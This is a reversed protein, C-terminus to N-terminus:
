AEKRTPDIRAAVDRAAAIVDHPGIRAVVHLPLGQADLVRHQDPLDWLPAEDADRVLAIVADAKESQALARTLEAREASGADPSGSVRAFRMTVLAAIAEELDDADVAEGIWARDGTDHDEGVIVCGREELARYADADPHASGTLHVRIGAVPASTSVRELQAVADAPSRRSADLMLELARAGSCRSPVARRAEGLHRLAKGLAREELAAASLAAADPTRGGLDTCFAVLARYQNRAFRHAAESRGGPLDVLLLPLDTGVARLAYYLRLHSQDDNCIVLGDFEDAGGLLRTLIRATVADAAGLLGAADADIEGSWSGTIRHPLAGAALVLQRPVDNGVIGIRPVSM